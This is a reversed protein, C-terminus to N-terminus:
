GESLGKMEARVTGWAHWTIQLIMLTIVLGILPDAVDFGLAVAAASAVVGLSVWADARAHHGDATLAASDLREGARLRIIAVVYNGIFGIAGAIAVALLHSPAQPHIFREIAAYGAFLASALIVLVVAVGSWAEAKRSHLVFAIGIPLATLADGVNHILDALLAVSGSMLYIVLQIAATIALGTLTLIVTRLGDRSRLVVPDELPHAHDHSHGPGHM